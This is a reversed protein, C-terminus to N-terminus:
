STRDERLVSGRFGQELSEWVRVREVTCPGLGM